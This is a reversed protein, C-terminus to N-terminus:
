TVYVRTMKVQFSEWRDVTWATRSDKATSVKQVTIAWPKGPDAISDAIKGAASEDAPWCEDYRLMDIPFPVTGQITADHHYRKIM